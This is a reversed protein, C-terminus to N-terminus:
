TILEEYLCGAGAAAHDHAASSPRSPATLGSAIILGYTQSASWALRM